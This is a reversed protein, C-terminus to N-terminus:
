ADTMLTSTAQHAWVHSPMVYSAQNSMPLMYQTCSLRSRVQPESQSRQVDNMANQLRPNAAARHQQADQVRAPPQSVPHMLYQNSPMMPPTTANPFARKQALEAAAQLIAAAVASDMGHSGQYAADRFNGYPDHSAMNGTINAQQPLRMSQAADEMGHFDGIYSGGKLLTNLAVTSLRTPSPTLPSPTRTLEPLQTLNGQLNNIDSGPSQCLQIETV